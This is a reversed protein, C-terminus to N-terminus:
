PLNGETHVWFIFFYLDDQLISKQKYNKWLRNVNTGDSFWCYNMSEEMGYTLINFPVLNFAPRQTIQSNVIRKPPSKKGM